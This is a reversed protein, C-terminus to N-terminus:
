VRRTMGSMLGERREFRGTVEIGGPRIEYRRIEKAHDSGRLKLVIVARQVASDIEVHRLLIVGDAVYALVGAVGAPLDSGGEEGLLLATVAERRLANAIAAYVHRLRHTDHGLRTFHSISDLVVRRIGKEVLLRGLPSDALELSRLFVEPSTFMVHLMGAQELARLDWGLGAADRYLSQPFEEFTVWLGPEQRRAAGEYVFQLGLTTKGTGPAGRVLVCSGPLLGGALMADLGGIGTSVRENM